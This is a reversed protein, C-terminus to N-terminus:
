HKVVIRRTQIAEGKEFATVLYVGNNFNSVDITEVAGAQGSYVVKGMVDTVRVQYDGSGGATNITVSSSAPNPSATMGVQAQGPEDVSALPNIHIDVSDVAVGGVKFYYRYLGGGESTIVNIDAILEGEGAAPIVVTPSCWVTQSVPYCGGQFTPDPYPAWCVQDTWQFPAYIKTRCASMTQDSGTLNQIYFKVAVLDDPVVNDVVHVTGGIDTSGGELFIEYQGWSLSVLSFTALLTYLKKM